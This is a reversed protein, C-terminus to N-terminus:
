IQRLGCPGTRRRRSTGPSWRARRISCSGSRSWAVRGFRCMWRRDPGLVVAGSGIGTM